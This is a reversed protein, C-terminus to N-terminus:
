YQLNINKKLPKVSWVFLSSVFFGVSISMGIQLMQMVFAAGNVVDDGLFGLSSKVGLSGPVMMMM